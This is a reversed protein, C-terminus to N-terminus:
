MFVVLAGLFILSTMWGVSVVRLGSNPVWAVLPEGPQRLSLKETSNDGDFVGSFTLRFEAVLESPEVAKSIGSLTLDFTTNTFSGNMTLREPPTDFYDLRSSCIRGPFRFLWATDHDLKDPMAANFRVRGQDQGRDGHTPAPAESITMNMVDIAKQVRADWDTWGYTTTVRFLDPRSPCSIESNDWQIYSYSDSIEDLSRHSEWTKFGIIIPNTPGVPYPVQPGVWVYGLMQLTNEADHTYSYCTENDTITYHLSAEGKFFSGDYSTDRGSIGGSTYNDANNPILDWKWITPQKPTACSDTNTGGGSNEGSDSDDSDGGEGGRRAQVGSISTSFQFLFYPLFLIWCYM